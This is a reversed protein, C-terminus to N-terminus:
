CQPLAVFTNNSFIFNIYYFLMYIPNSIAQEHFEASGLLEHHNQCNETEQLPKAIALGIIMAYVHM